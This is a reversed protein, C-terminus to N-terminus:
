LILFGNPIRIPQAIEGNSLGSLMKAFEPPLQGAKRWGM